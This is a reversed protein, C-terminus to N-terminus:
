RSVPTGHELLEEVTVFRFGRQRLRRILEPLAALTRSRDARGGDHALIISGPGVRGALRAIGAAPSGHDVYREVAFDWLITRLGADHADADIRANTQGYPPRFVPTRVHGVSDVIAAGRLLELRARASDLKRLAPHRFTHDGLQDGAAVEARVLDPYSVVDHGILFFTAPVHDRALLALVTPTWRPDPGDDFTLAVVRDDTLVRSVPGSTSEARAESARGAVAVVLVAVAACVAVVV